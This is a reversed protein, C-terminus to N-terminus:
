SPPKYGLVPVTVPPLGQAVLLMDRQNLEEIESSNATRYVINYNKMMKAFMDDSTKKENLTILEIKKAVIEDFLQQIEKQGMLNLLPWEGIERLVEELNDATTKKSKVSEILETFLAVVKDSDDPRSREQEYRTKYTDIYHWQKKLETLVQTTTYVKREKKEKKKLLNSFPATFKSMTNGKSPTGGHKKRSSFTRRKTTKRVGSKKTFRM